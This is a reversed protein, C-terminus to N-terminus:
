AKPWGVQKERAWRQKSGDCPSYSSEGGGLDGRPIWESTQARLRFAPLCGKSSLLGAQTQQRRTKALRDPLHTTSQEWACAGHAAICPPPPPPEQGSRARRRKSARPLSSTTVDNSDTSMQILIVSGGYSGARARHGNQMKVTLTPSCTGRDERCLGQGKRTVGARLPLTRRSEQGRHRYGALAKTRQKHTHTEVSSKSPRAASVAGGRCNCTSLRSTPAAPFPLVRVEGSATETQNLGQCELGTISGM